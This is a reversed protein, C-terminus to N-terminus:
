GVGRFGAHIAPRTKSCEVFHIKKDLTTLIQATVAREAILLEHPKM